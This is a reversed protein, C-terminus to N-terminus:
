IKTPNSTHRLINHDSEPSYLGMWWRGSLNDNSYNNNNKSITVSDVGHKMSGYFIGVDGIDIKDEVHLKNGESVFYTGGEDFDYTKKSMYVSIVIRQNYTSHQHPEIFGTNKPYRVIQLRDVIKDKPTNNIFADYNLGSLFKIPSWYRDLTNFLNFEDKNWRFFYFSHRIANISYSGLTKQDQIRHFNPCNEIIKHFTSPSNKSFLVLNNRLNNIFEKDFANKFIYFDGSYLNSIMNKIEEKDQTNIINIFDDGEIENINRLVSPQPINKEIDSWHERIFNNKM